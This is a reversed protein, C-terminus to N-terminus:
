AQGVNAFEKEGEEEGKIEEQHILFMLNRQLRCKSAAIARVVNLVM